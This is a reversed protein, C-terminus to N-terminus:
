LFLRAVDAEVDFLRHGHVPHYAYVNSVRVGCHEGRQRVLNLAYCIRHSCCLIDVWALAPFAEVVRESLHDKTM